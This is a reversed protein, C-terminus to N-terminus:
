LAKPRQPLCMNYMATQDWFEPGKWGCWGKDIIERINEGGTFHPDLILFRLAGTVESFNVGLITHALVGGGIMIPTGQTSFHNALERGKSALEAGTSVSLIKSTVGILHELCYSVELSGIWKKSEVFKVDKDGIDVLAQQIERHNPVPKETYGHFIFWSVLTQLSRYACGWKNDDFQDQMYHHYTYNGEVLYFKSDKLPNNNVIATHPNLIYGGNIEEGYFIYRNSRRLMPCDLPLGFIDHLQRRKVQLFDETLEKPYIVSLFFNTGKPQFHFVEPQYFKEEQQYEQLCTKMSELQSCISKCLIPYVDKIPQEMPILCLVDIQLNLTLCKEEGIRHHIFPACTPTSNNCALRQFVAMPLVEHQHSRQGKGTKMYENLTSVTANKKLGIIDERSILINGEDISFVFSGSELIDDCLREYECNLISKTLKGNRSLINLNIETRIRTIISSSFINTEGIIVEAQRPEVDDTPLLWYFSKDTIKDKDNLFCVILDDETDLGDLSRLQNWIKQSPEETKGQVVLGCIKVSGALSNEVYAQFNEVNTNELVRALGIIKIVSETRQGILFGQLLSSTWTSTNLSQLLKVDVNTETAM